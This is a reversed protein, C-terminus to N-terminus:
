RTRELLLKKEVRAVTKKVEGFREPTVALSDIGSEVLKSLYRKDYVDSVCVKIGLEKCSSCFNEMFQWFTPSKAIKGREEHGFFLHSLKEFDLLFLDVGSKPIEDVSLLLEPTDVVMGKQSIDSLGMSDVLSNLEEFGPAPLIIKLPSSYDSGISDFLGSIRELGQGSSESRVWLEAKGNLRRLKESLNREKGMGFSGRHRRDSELNVILGDYGESDVTDIDDSSVLAVIETATVSEIDDSVEPKWSTEPEDGTFHDTRETETNELTSFVRGSYADIRVEEDTRLSNHGTDQVLVCPIELERALKAYNSSFAGSSTLLAGPEQFLMEKIPPMNKMLVKGQSNRASRVVEGSYEGPSLGLGEFAVEGNEDERGRGYGRLPTIDLVTLDGNIISLEVTVTSSFRSAIKSAKSYVEEVERRDLLPTNKKNSSPPHKEIEGTSPNKDQIWDRNNTESRLLEGDRSFFYFDPTAEGNAMIEGMGYVGELVSTEPDCPNVELFSVTKDPEIMKQVLVGFPIDHAYGRKERYYIAEPSFFGKWLEKVEGVLNDDGKVNLTNRYIGPSSGDERQPSSRVVVPPKERGAKILEMAKRGAKKAESSIVFNKYAEEIEDKLDDPMRFDDILDMIERSADKLRRRDEIRTRALISLIKDNLGNSELFDRFAESTVVFGQPVRSVDEVASLSAAKSGVLEEEKAEDLSVIKRM